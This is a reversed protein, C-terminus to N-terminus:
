WHKVKIIRKSKLEGERATISFPAWSDYITKGRGDGFTFHYIYKSGNYRRWHLMEIEDAQCLYYKNRHGLYIVELGMLHFIKEVDWVYMFEGPVNPDEVLAGQKEAETVVYLFESQTIEKKTVAATAAAIDATYCGWKHVREPMGISNQHFM